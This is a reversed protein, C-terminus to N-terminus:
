NTKQEEIAQSHVHDIAQDRRIISQKFEEKGKQIIAQISDEANEALTKAKNNQRDVETGRDNGLAVINGFVKLMPKLHGEHLQIYSSPMFYINMLDTIRLRPHVHGQCYELLAFPILWSFLM